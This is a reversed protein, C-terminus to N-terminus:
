HTAFLGALVSDLAPKRIPKTLYGLMGAQKAMQRDEPSDNGTLAIIPQCFGNEILIRSTQFGDMDPMNLDMLVVDVTHNELWDIAHQGSAVCHVAYGFKILLSAQIEHLFRDDDVLLLSLCQM